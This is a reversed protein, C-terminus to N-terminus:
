DRLDREVDSLLRAAGRLAGRVDQPSDRTLKDREFQVVENALERAHDAPNKPWRRKAQAAKLTELEVTIDDASRQSYKLPDLDINKGTRGECARVLELFAIDAAHAIDPSPAYGLEAESRGRLDIARQLLDAPPLETAKKREARWAGM